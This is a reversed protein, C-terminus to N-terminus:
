SNHTEAQTYFNGDVYEIGNAELDQLVELRFLDEAKEVEMVDESLSEQILTQITDVDGAKISDYVLDPDLGEAHCEWYLEEPIAGDCFPIISLLLM